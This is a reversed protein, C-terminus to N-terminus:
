HKAIKYCLQSFKVKLNELKRLDRTKLGEAARSAVRINMKQSYHDLQSYHDKPFLSRPFQSFIRFLRCINKGQNYM